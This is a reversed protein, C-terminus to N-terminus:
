FKSFSIINSQLFLVSNLHVLRVVIPLNLGQYCGEMYGSVMVVRTVVRWTVMVVRTVVRWGQEGGLLFVPNSYAYCVQSTRNYLLEM